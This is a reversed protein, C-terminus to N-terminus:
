KASKINLNAYVEKSFAEMEPTDKKAEKKPVTNKIDTVVEEASEDELTKAALSKVAKIAFEAHQTQTLAKGSKVAELVGKKDAEIHALISGVRDAEVEIGRKKGLAFISKYADPYKAKIEEVTMTLPQKIEEPKNAEINNKSYLATISIKHASIESALEPTLNIVRNILKCELAEPATLVVELRQDMSFLADLTCGTIREFAAIDMKGEMAERLKKNKAELDQRDVESFQESKEYWEGYSARHFGFSATDVAENNNNYCFAFASMSNAEGDNKFIKKGKLEQLKALIGWGYRIEGGNSNVRLNLDSNGITGMQAIISEASWSYIDGYLLIEKPM